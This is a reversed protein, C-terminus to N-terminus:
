EIYPITLAVTTYFGKKSSVLIGYQSGYYAAIRKSVNWLGICCDAAQVYNEASQLRDNLKQLCEEDIGCGNDTISIRVINQDRRIRVEILFIGKHDGNFHFAHKFCNEALPQMLFKVCFNSLVGDEVDYMVDFKGPFRLDQVM